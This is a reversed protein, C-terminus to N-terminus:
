LLPRREEEEEEDEVELLWGFGKSELYQSARGSPRRSRTSSGWGTQGPPSQDSSITGTAQDGVDHSSKVDVFALNDAGQFPVSPQASSATDGFTPLLQPESPASELDGM